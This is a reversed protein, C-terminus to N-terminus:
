SNEEVAVFNQLTIGFKDVLAKAHDVLAAGEPSALAMQLSAVDAFHLEALRSYPGNPIYSLTVSSLGPVKGVLPIHTKLYESVFDEQSDEDQCRGWLAVLKVM